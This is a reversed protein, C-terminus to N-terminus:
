QRARLAGPSHRRRRQPVRPRSCVTGTRALATEYASWTARAADAWSWARTDNPPPSATQAVQVLACLDGAGVFDARGDLVERLTPADCAAVPTGCALAEIAPLGSGEHSPLVLAQAGSYIAALDEDSVRGTLVVNPLEQAWPRTPGVLVLPLEREAQALKVLHKRPESHLLSGVWVLYREPLRLRRRVVEIEQADRRYMSVSPAEPIVTLREPDIGLRSVAENALAYTPVIVRMARQVALDRLRFRAGTRLYESPRRLAVLDHLTVVMPCPSRLMAGQVWPSHFLDVGRPQHTEIIHTGAKATQHLAGLLYRTHRGVGRPDTVPRSDFAVRM